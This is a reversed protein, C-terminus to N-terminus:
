KGQTDEVPGNPWDKACRLGSMVLRFTGPHHVRNSSRLGWDGYNFAGGRLVHECEDPIPNTGTYGQMHNRKLDALTQMIEECTGPIGQPAGSRKYADPDYRDASWEWVNGALDLHGYPGAGAPHTGVDETLSAHFVARDATPKEEGWPYTRGDSGRAAREFEAETPLRRGIWSCYAAADSQSVGSIPQRPRRFQRDDGLKNARANDPSHPRCVGAEVCRFYAENPVETKDLLFPRLSVRHAPREDM